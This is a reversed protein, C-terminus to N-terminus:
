ERGRAGGTRRAEAGAAMAATTPETPRPDEDPRTAAAAGQPEAASATTVVGTTDMQVSEEAMDEAMATRAEGGGEGQAIVRDEFVAWLQAFWM